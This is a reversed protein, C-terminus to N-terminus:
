DRRFDKELNVEAPGPTFGAPSSIRSVASVLANYNLLIWGFLALTLFFGASFVLPYLFPYVDKQAAIQRMTLYSGSLPFHYYIIEGLNILVVLVVFGSQCKFERRGELISFVIFYFPMILLGWYMFWSAPFVLLMMVTLAFLDTARRGAQVAGVPVNKVKSWWLAFLVSLFLFSACARFWSAEGQHFFRLLSSLSLSSFYVHFKDMEGLQRFYVLNDKIGFALLSLACISACALVFVRIASRDKEGAYLGMMIVPFIKLASFGAIVAPILRGAGSLLGSYILTLGFFILVVTNGTLFMGYLPMSFLMVACASLLSIRSNNRSGYSYILYFSVWSLLHCLALWLMKAGSPTLGAFPLFLLTALPFAYYPNTGAPMEYISSGGLFNVAAFYGKIFDGGVAGPHVCFMKYVGFYLYFLLGAAIFVAPIVGRVPGMRFFPDTESATM